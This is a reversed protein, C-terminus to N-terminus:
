LWWVRERQLVGPLEKMRRELWELTLGGEPAIDLLSAPLQKEFKSIQRALVELRDVVKRYEQLMEMSSKDLSETESNRLRYTEFHATANSVGMVFVCDRNEDVFAQQRGHTAHEFHGM